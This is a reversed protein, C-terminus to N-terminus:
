RAEGIEKKQEKKETFGSDYLGARLGERFQELDWTKFEEYMSFLVKEKLSDSLIGAKSLRSCFRFREELMARYEYISEVTKATGYEQRIHRFDIASPINGMYSGSGWEIAVLSNEATPEEGSPHRAYMDVGSAVVFNGTMTDMVLLNRDSLKEMIRYDRGNFNRVTQGQLFETDLKTYSLGKISINGKCDMGLTKLQNLCEESCKERDFCVEQDTSNYFGKLFKQLQLDGNCYRAGVSKNGAFYIESWANEEGLTRGLELMTDAVDKRSDFIDMDVYKMFDEATMLFNTEKGKWNESVLIIETIKM